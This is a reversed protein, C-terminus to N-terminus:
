CVLCLQAIVWQEKWGETHMKRRIVGCLWARGNKERLKLVGVSFVQPLPQDGAGAASSSRELLLPSSFGWQSLRRQCEQSYSVLYWINLIWAKIQQGELQEMTQRERTKPIVAGCFKSKICRSGYTKGSQFRNQSRMYVYFFIPDM